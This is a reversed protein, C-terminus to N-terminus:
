HLLQKHSEPQRGIRQNRLMLTLYLSQKMMWGAKQNLLMPTKLKQQLMKMGSLCM